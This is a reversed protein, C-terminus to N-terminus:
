PYEAHYKFADFIFLGEELVYLGDHLVEDDAFQGVFLIVEESVPGTLEECFIPEDIELVLIIDLICNCTDILANLIRLQRHFNLSCNRQVLHNLLLLSNLNQFRPQILNQAIIQLNHVLNIIIIHHFGQLLKDKGKAIFYGGISCVKDFM